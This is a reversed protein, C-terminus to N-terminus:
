YGVVPNAPTWEKVNVSQRTLGLKRVKSVMPVRAKHDAMMAYRFADVADDDKKYIKLQNTKTDTIRRYMSIERILNKCISFIFLQQNAFLQNIRLLSAAVDNDANFLSLGKSVYMDFLTRADTGMRRNASPDIAFDMDGWSRLKAAHIDPLGEKSYYEDVVYFVPEPGTEDIAVKLAATAHAYGVDLGGIIRWTPEIEFPEIEFHTRPYQWIRGEGTSPRGYLRFEKEWDPLEREMRALEDPPIIEPGVDYATITIFTCDEESMRNKLLDYVETVGDEPTFAFYMLGRRSVVRMRAQAFWKYTPEEDFIVWDWNEGMIVDEEMQCSYFQITSPEGYPNAIYATDVVDPVGQQKTTRLIMDKPIMGPSGSGIDGLLKTQIVNRTSRSTKGIVAGRTPRRFKHGTWWDPYACTPHVSGIYTAVESKGCRNSGSIVTYKARSNCAQRQLDYAPKWYHLKQSARSKVIDQALRLAQDLANNGNALM